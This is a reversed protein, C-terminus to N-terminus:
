YPSIRFDKLKSENYPRRRNMNNIIEDINQKLLISKKETGTYLEFAKKFDLFNLQKTTNLPANSFIDIIIKIEERRGVRFYAMNRYFTVKGIQLTQQIFHLVNIDDVHLGIEFGFGFNTANIPIVRFSGEGDVLGRFWELFDPCRNCLICPIIINYSSCYIFSHSTAASHFLGNFVGIGTDLYTVFLSDYCM